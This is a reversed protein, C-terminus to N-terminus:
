GNYKKSPNRATHFVSLVWIKNKKNSMRFVILFPFVSMKMERFGGTQETFSYPLAVIRSLSEELNNMFRDGLGRQQGEHWLWADSVEKAAKSSFVVMM